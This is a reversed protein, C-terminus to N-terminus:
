SDSPEEDTAAAAMPTAGEHVTQGREVLIRYSSPLYLDVRSGFKILGILEGREVRDGEDLYSVVRRALLGAIQKVAFTEGSPTRLVALESENVEDADARFAAVKRGPQHHTAVVAGAVPARQVHVNFVSLFTVIHHFEGRAFAPDTVRDVRTIKGNAPALVIGPDASSSRAPIRFFLLIALGLVVGTAVLSPKRLVIAAIALAVFPLVFPWAERAFTM